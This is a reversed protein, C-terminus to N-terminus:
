KKIFKYFRHDYDPANPDSFYFNINTVETWNVLDTSAYVDHALGVASPFRIQPQGPKGKGDVVPLGIVQPESEEPTKIQVTKDSAGTKQTVEVPPMEGAKNFSWSLIDHNESDAGTSATFGVWARDSDFSVFDELKVAVTLVPKEFDDLFVQLHGPEYRVRATHIRGDSYLEPATVTGMTDKLKEYSEEGGCSIVSIEDYKVYRSRHWHYTDFTVAFASGGYIFGLRSGSTGLSPTPRDQLVFAFGDGGNRVKDTIRFKFTTEFGGRVPQQTQMWLGGVRGVWNTHSPTLRVFDAQHTADGQFILGTPSGFNGYNIGSAITGDDLLGFLLLTFFLINGTKKM